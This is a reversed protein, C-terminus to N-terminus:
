RNLLGKLQRTLKLLAESQTAPAKRLHPPVYVSGEIHEAWGSLKTVSELHFAGAAPKTTTEAAKGAKGAESSEEAESETSGSDSEIGGWEEEEEEDELGDDESDESGGEEADMDYDDLTDSGESFNDEDDFDGENGGQLYTSHFLTLSFHTRVEGLSM